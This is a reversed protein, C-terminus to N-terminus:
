GAADSPASEDASVLEQPQGVRGGRRRGVGPQSPKPESRDPIRHRGVSTKSLAPGVSCDRIPVGVQHELRATDHPDEEGHDPPNSALCVSDSQVSDSQEYSSKPAKGRQPDRGFDERLDASPTESPQQVSGVAADDWGRDLVEGDSDDEASPASPTPDVEGSAVELCVAAVDANEATNLVRSRREKAGKLPGVGEWDDHGVSAMVEVERAGDDAARQDDKEDIGAMAKLRKTWVLQRVGKFAQAYERWRKSAEEDSHFVADSLLQMPTRGGRRGRKSGSLALEEAAGFKAIYRGAGAASQVHWARDELGDLGRGRLAKVWGPALTEFQSQVGAISFGRVLIIQHFHSHWGARGFTVETATVSGVILPALKKYDRRQRHSQKAKKMAEIQGKLDDELGHRTTMTVMIPVIKRGKNDKPQEHAWKLLRTLEGARVAAIRPSCVPCVWVLGCQQLGTFFARQHKGDKTPTRLVEVRGDLRQLAHKCTAVGNYPDLLGAAGRQLHLQVARRKQYAHKPDAPSSRGVTGGTNGLGPGVAQESGTQTHAQRETSPPLM